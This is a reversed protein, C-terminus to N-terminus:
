IFSTSVPYRLHRFYGMFRKLNCIPKITMGRNKFLSYLECKKQLSTINHQSGFSLQSITVVYNNKILWSEFGMLPNNKVWGFGCDGWGVCVARGGEGDRPVRPHSRDQCAVDTGRKRPADKKASPAVGSRAALPQPSFQDVVDDIYGIYPWTRNAYWCGRHYGDIYAGTNDEPTHM